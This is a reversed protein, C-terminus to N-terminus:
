NVTFAATATRCIQRFRAIKIQHELRGNTGYVVIVVDRIQSGFGRLSNKRIERVDLLGHAAFKRKSDRLDAFSKTVFDSGAIESKPRTFELLHFDFIEALRRLKQLFAFLVVLFQVGFPDLLSKVPVDIKANGGFFDQFAFLEFFLKRM